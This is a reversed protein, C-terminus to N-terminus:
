PKLLDWVKRKLANDSNIQLISPLFFYSGQPGTKFELGSFDVFQSSFFLVQVDGEPILNWDPNGTHYAFHWEGRSFNMAELMRELMNMQEANIADNLPLFVVVRIESSDLLEGSQFLSETLFDDM